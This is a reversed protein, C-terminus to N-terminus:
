SRGTAHDGSGWRIVNVAPMVNSGMTTYQVYFHKNDVLLGYNEELYSLNQPYAGEIAYCSVLAASVARKTAELQESDARVSIMSVAYLFLCLMVVALVFPLATNIANRKHHTPYLHM